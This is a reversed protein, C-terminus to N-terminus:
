LSRILSYLVSFIVVIGIILSAYQYGRRKKKKPPVYTNRANKLESNIRKTLLEDKEKDPVKKNLDSM